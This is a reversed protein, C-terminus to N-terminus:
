RRGQWVKIIMVFFVLAFFVAGLIGVTLLMALFIDKLFELM